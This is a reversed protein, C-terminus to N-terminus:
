AKTKGKKGGPKAGVGEAEQAKRERIRKYAAQQAIGLLNNTLWYLVLGSPFGLFLVTFFIPMMMFMRRQMPDSAAPTLKQQVFQSAGM